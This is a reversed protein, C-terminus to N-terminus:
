RGLRRRAVAIGLVLSALLGLAPSASRGPPLSCGSAAAPFSTVDGETDPLELPATASTAVADGGAVVQTGRKATFAADADYDQECQDGTAALTCGDFGVEFPESPASENGAADIAIVRLTAAVSPVDDFSLQVRLPTPGALDVGLMRRLAPPVDGEVLELRFGIERAPTQDDDASLDVAVGGLDGCNNAVCIDQGCTLGSRRYAEAALVVPREPPATDIRALDADSHHLRLPELVCAAAQQSQSLLLLAVGAPLLGPLLGAPFGRRLRANTGTRLPSSMERFALLSEQECLAVLSSDHTPCPAITFNADPCTAITCHAIGCPTIAADDGTPTATHM